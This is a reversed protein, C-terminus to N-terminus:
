NNSNCISALINELRQKITPLDLRTVRALWNFLKFTIVM